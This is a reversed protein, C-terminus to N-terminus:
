GLREAYDRVHRNIYTTLGSGKRLIWKMRELQEPGPKERDYVYTDRASNKFRVIIFDDRVAFATVGTAGNGYPQLAITEGQYRVSDM